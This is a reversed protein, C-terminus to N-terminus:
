EPDTGEGQHPPNPLPSQAENTAADGLAEGINALVFQIEDDLQQNRFRLLRYGQSSLWADRQTDHETQERELHQPGDLEIILKHSFCVFDVIYPGIAAQRRFKFGRLQAARLHVWLNKEANTSQNRLTRAFNRQELNRYM